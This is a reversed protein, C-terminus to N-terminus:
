RAVVAELILDLLFSTNWGGEPPITGRGPVLGAAPYRAFLNPDAIPPGPDKDYHGNFDDFRAGLARTPDEPREV